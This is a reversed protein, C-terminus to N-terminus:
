NFIYFIYLRFLFIKNVRLYNKWKCCGKKKKTKEFDETKLSISQVSEISIQSEKRICGMLEKGISEFLEQIGYSNLASVTRYMANISKAYNEAEEKKVQLVNYKDSKNGVICIM